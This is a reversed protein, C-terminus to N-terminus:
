PPTSGGLWVKDTTGITLDFTIGNPVCVGAGADSSAGGGDSEKTGADGTTGATGADDTTGKTGADDTTGTTDADSASGKNGGDNEVVVLPNPSCGGSFAPVSLLASAVCVIHARKM